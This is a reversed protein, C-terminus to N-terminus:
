AALAYNNEGIITKCGNKFAESAHAQMSVFGNDKSDFGTLGLNQISKYYIKEKQKFCNGHSITVSFICFFGETLSLKKRDPRSEFERGWAHCAHIRVSQVVPGLNRLVRKKQTQSHM